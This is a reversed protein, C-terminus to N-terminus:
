GKMELVMVKLGEQTYLQKLDETVNKNNSLLLFCGGLGGGTIKGGVAHKDLGQQIWQDIHSHSVELEKLLSHNENMLNGLAMVDNSELALQGLEVLENLEMIMNAMREPHKKAYTAVHAVAEKTSGKINSDVLILDAVLKSNLVQIPQHKQFHIAKGNLITEIDIGSANSHHVREAEQAFSRIIDLNSEVNAYAFLAKVIGISLAASSGMGRQLPITSDIKFALNDHIQLYAKVSIILAKLGKLVEPADMLPGTYLDSTMSETAAKRVVIHANCADFPLAISTSGYVVFHEGMLIIKGGTISQGVREM